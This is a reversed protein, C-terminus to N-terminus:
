PLSTEVNRSRLRTDNMYYTTPNKRWLQVHRSHTTHFHRRRTQRVFQSIKNLTFDKIFRIMKRPLKTNRLGLIQVTRQIREIGLIDILLNTAVNDSAIIMQTAADKLSIRNVSELDKLVGSSMMLRVGYPVLEIREPYRSSSM